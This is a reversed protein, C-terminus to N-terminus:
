RSHSSGAALSSSSATFHRREFARDAEGDDAGPKGARIAAEVIAWIPANARAAYDDIFEAVRDRQHRIVVVTESAGAGAAARMAHGLLPAGGIPHLVKPLTSKMRTGEGAALIIVADPRVDNM